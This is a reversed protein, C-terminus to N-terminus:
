ARYSAYAKTHLSYRARASADRTLGWDKEELRKAHPLVEREVFDQITQAVLRHEATLDEPTFVDEAAVDAIPFSGSAVGDTM